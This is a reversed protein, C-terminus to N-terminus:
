FATDLTVSWEGTRAVRRLTRRLSRSPEFEDVFAVMRPDPSWWLVPQGQSYWPFIGKGYAELLRRPSLDRGAALLGNPERLATHAPPLPQGPEVWTLMEGAPPVGARDAAGPNRGVGADARSRRVGDRPPLRVQRLLRRLGRRRAHRHRGARGHRPRVGAPDRDASAAGSRGAGQRRRCSRVPQAGRLLPHGR